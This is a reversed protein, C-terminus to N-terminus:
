RCAAGREVWGRFLYDIVYARLDDRVAEADWVASDLLRQVGYPGEEGLAEALQWGTKRAVPALLGSLYRQVRARVEARGFRHAIRDYLRGMVTAWDTLVLTEADEVEWREAVM